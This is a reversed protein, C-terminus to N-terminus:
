HSGGKKFVLGMLLGVCLAIAVSLAGYLRSREFALYSILRPLGVLKLELTSTERRLVAGAKVQVVEVNYRGAGASDPWPIAVAFEARAGRAGSMVTGPMDAFAGHSQKLKLYERRVLAADSGSPDLIARNMVAELDLLNEDVLRRDLGATGPASSAILCLSPVGSVHLAGVNAWVPGVRGKRNFKEKVRAGSIIVFVQSHPEASGSIRITSGHFGADVLIPNPEVTMGAAPVAFLVLVLAALSFRKPMACM